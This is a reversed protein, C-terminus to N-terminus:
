SLPSSLRLPKSRPVVNETCKNFGSLFFKCFINPVSQFTIGQYFLAPLTNEGILRGKGKASITDGRM